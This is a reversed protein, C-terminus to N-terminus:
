QDPRLAPPVLLGCLKRAQRLRFAASWSVGHAGEISVHHTSTSDGRLLPSAPADAVVIQITVLTSSCDAQDAAGSM